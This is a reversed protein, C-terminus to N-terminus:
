ENPMVEEFFFKKEEQKQDVIEGQVIQVTVHVGKMVFLHEYLARAIGAVTVFSLTSWVQRTTMALPALSPYFVNGILFGFLVVFYWSFAWAMGKLLYFFFRLLM